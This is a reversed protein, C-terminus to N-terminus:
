RKIKLLAAIIDDQPYAHGKHQRFGEAYTVGIEEGRSACFRKMAEIYEDMGHHARLWERQSAHCALAAEKEAMVGSVDVIVDAEMRRGFIDKQEVADVYYLHPVKKLLPAPDPDRTLVNPIGAGFCASRVLRSTMEHDVMYDVPPHTLVIDPQAKRLIEVFRRLTPEDYMVFLDTCAGGYYEAQITKAAARAEGHRIRAIEDPRHEMSGCDGSTSTAIALTCGAERQLRIMTGACTIEADDPHAFFGLVKTAM